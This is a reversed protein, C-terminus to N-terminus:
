HHQQWHQGDFRQRTCQRNFKRAATGTVTLNEVNTTNADTALNYTLATQVTDIGENALEEIVDGPVDSVIYTDNGDGGTM